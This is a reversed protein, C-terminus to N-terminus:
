LLCQNREDKIFSARWEPDLDVNVDIENMVSSSVQEGHLAALADSLSMSNHFLLQKLLGTKNILGDKEDCLLQLTGKM